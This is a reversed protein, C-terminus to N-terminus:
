RDGGGPSRADSCLCSRCWSIKIANERRAVDSTGLAVVKGVWFAGTDNMVSHASILGSLLSTLCPDTVVKQGWNSLLM